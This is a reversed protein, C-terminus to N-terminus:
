QCDHIIKEVLYELKYINTDWERVRSKLEIIQSLHMVSYINKVMTSDYGISSNNYDTYILDCPTGITSLLVGLGSAMSVIRKAKEAYVYLENIPCHIEIANEIRDSSDLANVLVVYGKEIFKQCLCKWFTMPLRKMSSAEPCFLVYSCGQTISAITVEAKHRIRSSIKPLNTIKETTSLGMSQLIASVFNVSDGNQWAMKMAEAIRFTPCVVQTKGIVTINECLFYNLDSQSVDFRLIDCGKEIFMEYFPLDKERWVLIAPKKAGVARIWLKLCMLYVLTEGINHRSVFVVDYNEGLRSKFYEFFEKSRNKVYFPIGLIRLVKYKRLKKSFVSIGFIEIRKDIPSRQIQIIGNFFSRIHFNRDFLHKNESRYVILNGLRTEKAPRPNEINNDPFVSGIGAINKFLRRLFAHHSKPYWVSKIYEKWYLSRLKSVHRQLREGLNVGEWVFPSVIWNYIQVENVKGSLCFPKSLSKDERRLQAPSISYLREQAGVLVDCLGSRLAFIYRCKLGISVVDRLSLSYDFVSIGHPLKIRKSNVLINYGHQHVEEAIEEWWEIPFEVATAAEPAFLVIQELTGLEEVCKTATASLPLEITPVSFRFEDEIGMNELWRYCWYRKYSFFHNIPNEAIFAKGLRPVCSFLAQYMENELQDVEHPLPKNNKFYSKQFSFNNKVLKDLDYVSYDKIGFFEMLFEHQPRVIFRLSRGYTEEFAQKAAITYFVDGLHKHLVLNYKTSDCISEIEQVYSFIISYKCAISDVSVFMASQAPVCEIKRINSM